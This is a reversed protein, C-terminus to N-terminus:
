DSMGSGDDEDDADSGMSEPHAEMCLPVGQGMPSRVALIHFRSSRVARLPSLLPTTPPVSRPLRPAITNSLPPTGLPPRPLPQPANSATSSPRSPDAKQHQERRSPFFVEDGTWSDTSTSSPSAAADVDIKDAPNSQAEHLPPTNRLDIHLTKRREERSPTPSFAAAIARELDNIPDAPLYLTSSKSRLPLPSAIPPTPRIRAPVPRTTFPRPPTARMQSQFPSPALPESVAPSSPWSRTAAAEVDALSDEEDISNDSEGSASPPCKQSLLPVTSQGSGSRALNYGSQEDESSHGDPVSSNTDSSSQDEEKGPDQPKM